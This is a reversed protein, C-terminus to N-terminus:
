PAGDPDYDKPDGSNTPHAIVRRFAANMPLGLNIGKPPIPQTFWKDYIRTIEGSAYINRMADDIVAKFAPENRRLMIGYPEVSLAKDSIAFDGPSRASAASSALLIDDMVFAAAQGSEVMQFGEAHDKTPLVTLGLQLRTNLENILKINTTGSTSVVTKGKLDELTRFQNAKKSLFRTSTVFHTITFAVQKQRDLTNSTSGCELDVSGNAVLAIRTSPTVPMLAVKLADLKLHAKVADALRTCLEAAYGVVQEKEYYSFPISADRYGLTITGSEKIKKLTGTLEQAAAASSALLALALVVAPRFRM